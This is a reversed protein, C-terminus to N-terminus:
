VLRVWGDVPLQEAKAWTMLQDVLGTVQAQWTLDSVDGNYLQILRLQLQIGESLHRRWVTNVFGCYERQAADSMAGGYARSAVVLSRRLMEKTLPPRGPVLINLEEAPIESPNSQPAAVNTTWAERITDFLFGFAKSALTEVLGSGGTAAPARSFPSLGLQSVVTPGMQAPSRPPQSVQETASSSTAASAPLTHDRSGVASAPQFAQCGLLRNFIEPQALQEGEGECIPCDLSPADHTACKPCPAACFPLYALPRRLVGRVNYATRLEHAKAPGIGGDIQASRRELLSVANQDSEGIATILRNSEARKASETDSKQYFCCQRCVPKAGRPEHDPCTEAWNKLEALYYAGQSAYAACHTVTQPERVFRLPLRSKVQRNFEEKKKESFTPPHWYDVEAAVASDQQLEHLFDNLLDIAAQRNEEARETEARSREHEEAAIRKLEEYVETEASDALWQLAVAPSNRKLAKRYHKCSDCKAM